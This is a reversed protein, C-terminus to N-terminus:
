RPQLAVTLYVSRGPLPYDFTDVLPYPTTNGRNVLGGLPLDIVRLDALNRVELSVSLPAREFSARVAHLWRAPLRNYNQQDRFVEDVFQAEYFLKFPAGGLDVRAAFEHRPREPLQKGYVGPQATFNAADLFTYDCSLAA